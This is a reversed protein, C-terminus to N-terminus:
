TSPSVPRVVPFITSATTHVRRAATAAVLVRRLWISSVTGPRQPHARQGHTAGAAGAIDMATSVWAPAVEKAQGVTTTLLHDPHLPLVGVFAGLQHVVPLATGLAGFALISPPHTRSIARVEPRAAYIALHLVVEAPPDGDGAIKSGDLRVVCCEEATSLAPAKQPTVVCTDEDLRASVHGFGEVLGPPGPSRARPTSPATGALVPPVEYEGDAPASSTIDTLAPVDVHLDTDLIPPQVAEDIYLRDRSSVVLLRM